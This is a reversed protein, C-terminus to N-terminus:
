KPVFGIYDLSMTSDSSLPDRGAVTFRFTHQGTSTFTLNGLDVELYTATPAYSDVTPGQNVGDVSLQWIAKNTSDKLGVRIDYTRTDPVTVLFTGYAGNSHTDFYVGAGGSFKPDQVVAPTILHSVGQIPLSEAEFRLTAAPKVRVQTSNASENGADLASVVYYYTTGDTVNSDVVNTAAVNPLVTTYPGGSATARKVNYGTAWTSANWNLTAQKDGPSVTLGTPPLLTGNATITVTTSANLGTSSRVTLTAKYVGASVYQHSGTAGTATSGDGFTWAYSAITGNLVKSGTADFAATLPANGVTPTASIVPLVPPEAPIVFLTISQPPLTVRLATGPITSDPLRSIVNASTLQFTQVPGLPVYNNLNLTLPTTGSLYKNIVIVTLANDSTRQAAFASLNDPNPATASVSVDGFTSNAGDYNRYMQMAKFTPTSPDPPWRAAFALGQQGFIGLVDAQATAGNISADGGWSYETLAVPTGSYYYSNVWSVTQPIVSPPTYWGNPLYNPDWLARTSQNRLLQTATSVDSSLEARSPYYHVSFVDIPPLGGAVNNQKLQQLLWPLYQANGNAASDPLNSWGHLMGYQQDYGSLTFSCEEPGVVLATPDVSKIKGSYDLIDNLVEKMMAGTPHVDRHTLYWLSPENDLIYYKLGGASAGGWTSVLHQVWQQQFSSNAQVDADAPNNVVYQGTSQLIGNGADTMTPDYGTQPGYKGISFSALPTRNSGFTAVWGIMPITIMAQAGAAKSTSIITDGREGAVASTDPRSEFYGDWARNDGNLQWNYRSANDGGYRNVPANLLPLTTADGGNIGYVGPNIPLRNAQADVVVTVAPNQADAPIAVLLTSIAFLLRRQM